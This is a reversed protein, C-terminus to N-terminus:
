SAGKALRKQGKKLHRKQAGSGGKEVTVLGSVVQYDFAEGHAASADAVAKLAKRIDKAFDGLDGAESGCLQHLTEVRMPYPQAHSAYFGHLWQALQKGDLESRVAWEIQTFQDAAFLGALKPNIEIVWEQTIEDKAAHNILHGYYEGRGQKLKVMAATLREIRTRLTERNPGTDSKGMMQLLTYATIKCRTGLEQARVAHLVSEWVDLDGQNLRRGTYSITVGDVAAVPVGDVYPRRGPATVSFLASRLFGNPVARVQEPWLPLQVAKAKVPAPANAAAQAARQRAIEQNTLFREDCFKVM